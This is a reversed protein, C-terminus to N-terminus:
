IEKLLFKKWNIHPRRNRATTKRKFVRRTKEIFASIEKRKFVRRTKKMFTPIKLDNLLDMRNSNCFYSLIIKYLKTRFLRRLVINRISYMSVFLSILYSSYIDKAFYRFSILQGTRVIYGPDKIRIGNVFVLGKKLIDRIMSVRFNCLQRRVLFDLRKNLFYFLLGMSSYPYIKFLRYAIHHLDSLSYDYFYKLYAEARIEYAPVVSNKVYNCKSFKVIKHTYKHKKRTLYKKKKRKRRLNFVTRGRYGSFLSLSSLKYRNKSRKFFNVMWRGTPTGYELYETGLERYIQGQLGRIYNYEVMLPRMLSKVRSFIREKQKRRMITQPIKYLFDALQQKEHRLKIFFFDRFLKLAACRCKNNSTMERVLKRKFWILFKAFFSYLLHHLILRRTILAALAIRKYSKVKKRSFLIGRGLVQPMVFQRRQRLFIRAFSNHQTLMSGSYYDYSKTGVYM